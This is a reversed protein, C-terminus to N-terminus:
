KIFDYQAFGERPFGIMTDIVPLGISDAMFDESRERWHPHRRVPVESSFGNISLIADTRQLHDRNPKSLTPVPSTSTGSRGFPRWKNPRFARGPKGRQSGLFADALRRRSLQDLPQLAV